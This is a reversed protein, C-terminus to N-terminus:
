TMPSATSSISGGPDYGRLDRWVEWRAIAGLPSDDDLLVSPDLGREVGLDLLSGRWRPSRWEGDAVIMVVEEDSLRGDIDM